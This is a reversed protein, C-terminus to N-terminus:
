SESRGTAAWTSRIIQRMDYLVESHIFVAMTQGDEETLNSCVGTNLVRFCIHLEFNENSENKGGKRRSRRSFDDSTGIFDVAIARRSRNVTRKRVMRRVVRRRGMGRMVSTFDVAIVRRRGRRVTRRRRRVMRRMVSTVDVAIVRRRGRRVTGRRRRIIRRMVSTVNVGFVMAIVRIVMIMVAIV